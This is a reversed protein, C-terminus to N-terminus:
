CRIKSKMVHKGAQVPCFNYCVAGEDMTLRLDDISYKAM